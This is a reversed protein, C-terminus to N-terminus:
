YRTCPSNCLTIEDLV